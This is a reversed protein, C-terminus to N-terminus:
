LHMDVGIGLSFRVDVGGEPALFGMVSTMTKFDIFRGTTLFFGLEMQPGLRYEVPVDDVWNYDNRYVVGGGLSLSMIEQLSIHYCYKLGTLITPEVYDVPAMLGYTLGVYSRGFRGGLELNYGLRFGIDSFDMLGTIGLVVTNKRRGSGLRTDERIQDLDPSSTEINRGSDWAIYKHQLIKVEGDWLPEFLLVEGEVAVLVVSDVLNVLISHDEIVERKEYLNFVNGIFYDVESDEPIRIRYVGEEYTDADLILDGAWLSVPMALILLISFFTKM